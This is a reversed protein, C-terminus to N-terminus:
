NYSLRTPPDWLPLHWSAHMCTSTSVTAAAAAMGTCQPLGPMKAPCRPNLLAKMVANGDEFLLRSVVYYPQPDDGLRASAIACGMEHPELEFSALVDLTTDDLVRM